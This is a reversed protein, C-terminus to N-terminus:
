RVVIGARIYCPRPTLPDLWTPHSLNAILIMRSHVHSEVCWAISHVARICLWTTWTVTCPIGHMLDPHPVLPTVHPAGIQVLSAICVGESGAAILYILSLDVKISIPNETKCRDVSTCRSFADLAPSIPGQMSGRDQVAHFLQDGTKSHSEGLPTTETDTINRSARFTVDAACSIDYWYYKITLV